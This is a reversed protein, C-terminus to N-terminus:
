PTGKANGQFWEEMARVVEPELYITNTNSLGDSTTLVVQGCDNQEIYVGDGLYTKDMQNEEHQCTQINTASHWRFVEGIHM